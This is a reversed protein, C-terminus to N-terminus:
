SWEEMSTMVIEEGVEIYQHCKPCKTRLGAAIPTAGPPDDGYEECMRDYCEAHVGKSGTIQKAKAKLEAYHSLKPPPGNHPKPIVEDKVQLYLSKGFKAVRRDAEERLPKGEQPNSHLEQILKELPLGVYHAKHNSM